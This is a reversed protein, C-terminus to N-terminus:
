SRQSQVYYDVTGHYVKGEEEFLREGERYCAVTAAAFQVWDFATKITAATTRVQNASTSYIDFQVLCEEIYNGGTQYLTRSSVLSVLFYPYAQADPPSTLYLSGLAALAPTSQWYSQIEALVNM